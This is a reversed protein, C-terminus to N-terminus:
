FTAQLSLTFSRAFPYILGRPMKVSSYHFLDNCSLGLHLDQMYLKNALNKDFQYDVRLSALSIVNRSEVFRSTPLTTSNDFGLYETQDGAKQWKDMMDVPGNQGIFAEDVYRVATINYLKSGFSYRFMCNFSWNKLSGLLGFSGALKPTPDGQYVLNTAEWQNTETGNQTIFIEKGTQADIGKSDVAYIANVAKGVKLQLTSTQNSENWETMFDNPCTELKNKNFTGNWLLGLSLGNVDKLIDANLGFELGSNRIEGGNNWKWASGNVVNDKIRTVVDKSLTNYYRVNASLHDFLTFRIGVYFNHDSRWKLKKNYDNIPNLTVLGLKNSSSTANLYPNDIDYAYMPNVQDYDFQFGPTMGIGASLVLQNLINSEQLFKENRVNWYGGVSWAMTVRKKPALRSSKDARLSVDVGYRQDFNYSGSLYGSFLRDFAERGGPRTNFAYTKAFSIYDMHDSPLGVGIYNDSYDKAAYGHIGLSVNLNHRDFQNSYNLVLDEEYMTTNERRIKYQGALEASDLPLDSFYESKFSIYQDFKNFDKTFTFNGSLELHEMIQWTMNLTNMVRTARSKSFSSLSAEYYPSVQESFTGEGMVSASHQGGSGKRYYPNILMYDQFVGYPSEKGYIVDIRLEDSVYLKSNRYDLRTGIAYHDRKSGKMVGKNGPTALFYARYLISSDGGEIELQHKHRFPTQLPVKLWNTNGNRLREQYLADNGDYMGMSKELALKQSANMIDYSSLDAVDIGGDFRYYLRLSGAQMKKTTIAIVGNGARVGYIATGTADKLITVREVRNIDFDALRDMSIEYGDVIILPLVGGEKGLITKVGRFTIETPVYNPDSGYWEEARDIIMSPEVVQLAKLLNTPHFRKLQNGSFSNGLIAKEDRTQVNKKIGTQAAVLVSSGVLIMVGFIARWVFINSRSKGPYKRKKGRLLKIM